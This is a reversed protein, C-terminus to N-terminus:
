ARNWSRLGIGNSGKNDARESRVRILRALLSRQLDDRAYRESRDRLEAGANLILKKMSVRNARKVGLSEQDGTNAVIKQRRTAARFKPRRDCAAALRCSNREDSRENFKSMPDNM